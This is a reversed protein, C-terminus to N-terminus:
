DIGSGDVNFEMVKGHSELAPTMIGLSELGLFAVSFNL